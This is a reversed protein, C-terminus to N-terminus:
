FSACHEAGRAGCPVPLESIGMKGLWFRNVRASHKKQKSSEIVREYLTPFNECQIYFFKCPPLEIFWMNFRQTAGNRIGRLFLRSRRLCVSDPFGFPVSLVRAMPTRKSYEQRYRSRRFRGPWDRNVSRGSRVGRWLLHPWRM